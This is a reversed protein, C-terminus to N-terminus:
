AMLDDFQAKLALLEAKLESVQMELADIRATVAQTPEIQIATVQSAIQASTATSDTSIGSHEALPRAEDSLEGFLHMWRCERKGPERALQEVCGGADSSALKKLVLEVDAVDSFSALRTARTRLEGATQPGRLFLLCLLALQRANYRVEAFESTGFRHQYKSVRSGTRVQSVLNAAMLSDLANQVQGENLTLVPERNSKQNCGTLLSNLSLPYQDPTTAAKEILCGMVRLEILSLKQM